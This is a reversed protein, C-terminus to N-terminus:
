ILNRVNGLFCYLTVYNFFLLIESRMDKMRKRERWRYMIIAGVVLIAALLLVVFVAVGTVIYVAPQSTENIDSSEIIIEGIDARFNGM